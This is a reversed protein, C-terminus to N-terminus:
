VPRRHRVSAHGVRRGNRRSDSTHLRRHGMWGADGGPRSLALSTRTQQLRPVLLSRARSHRCSPDSATAQYCARDRVGASLTLIYETAARISMSVLAASIDTAEDLADVKVVLKLHRLAGVGYHTFVSWFDPDLLWFAGDITIQLQLPRAGGLVMRLMGSDLGADIEKIVVKPIHKPIALLYLTLISGCYSTLSTWTGFTEQESMNRARRPGYEAGHIRVACDQTSLIRLNPFTRVYHHVHRIEAAFLSLYTVNPYVPGDPASTSRAMSLYKLTDAFPYLYWMLNRDQLSLIGGDAENMLSPLSVTVENLPCHLSRLMNITRLGANTLELLELKTLQAIAASVDPHLGLFQEAGDICLNRLDGDAAIARFLRALAMGTTEPFAPPRPAHPHYPTSLKLSRLLKIRYTSHGEKLMFSIFSGIRADDEDLSAGNSLLRRAGYELLLPCTGMLSRLTGHDVFSAISLLVDDNLNPSSM